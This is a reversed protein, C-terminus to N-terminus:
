EEEMAKELAELFRRNEQPRGVTVRLCRDLLPAEHFCRVLVGQERLRRHVRRADGAVRFLIFNTETPFPRVGRMARLARYLTERAQLVKGVTQRVFAREKLLVQAAAQSLANVNYPLRVKELEQVLDPPGVLAGLRLGALGIKSLSRLVVLNPHRPLRPLFSKGAYAYYAEDLVVVGRAERLVAEVRRRSFCNGTPNNPYSLFTLAPRQQRLARLFARTDLDFQRDLPVEVPVWGQARALLGYMTFTPVPYLVRRGTGGLATLLMQILEDSGNGLLIQEESVRWLSALVSRLARAGPDPYRNVPVRALAAAVRRRLAPPLPYPNEMADLKVPVDGSELPYPRLARVERRIWRSMGRRARRTVM